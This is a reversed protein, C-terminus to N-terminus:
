HSFSAVIGKDGVLHGVGVAIFCQRYDPNKRLTELWARNRAYLLHELQEPRNGAGPIPEVIMRAIKQDDGERYWQLLQETYSQLGSAGVTRYEELDAATFVQDIAQLQDQMSAFYLVKKGHDRAYKTLAVDMMSTKYMESDMAYLMLLASWPRMRDLSQETVRYKLRDVLYKWTEPSLQAKLSAGEPLQTYQAIKIESIQELNTETVFCPRNKLADWVEQPLETQANVGTHITGFLYFDDKSQTMHWLFPKTITKPTTQSQSAQDTVCGTLVLAGVCLAAGAFKLRIRQLTFM